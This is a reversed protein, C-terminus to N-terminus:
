KNIELKIELPSNEYTVEPFDDNHLYGVYNGIWFGKDENKNNILKPKYFFLKLVGDWDRAIYMKM